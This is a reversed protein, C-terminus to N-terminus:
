QGEGDDGDGDGEGEGPEGDDDEEEEHHLRKGLPYVGVELEKESGELIVLYQAGNDDDDLIIECEEILGDDELSWHGEDIEVAYPREEEQRYLLTVAM